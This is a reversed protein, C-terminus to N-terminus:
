KQVISPSPSVNDKMVYTLTQSYHNSSESAKQFAWSGFNYIKFVFYSTDTVVTKMM